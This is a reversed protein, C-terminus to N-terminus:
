YKNDLVQKEMEVLLKALKRARVVTIVVIERANDDCKMKDDEAVRKGAAQMSYLVDESVGLISHMSVTTLAIHAEYDKLLEESLFHCKKELYWGGAITAYEDMM